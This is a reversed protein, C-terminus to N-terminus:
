EQVWPSVDIAHSALRSLLGPQHSALSHTLKIVREALYKTLKCLNDDPEQLQGTSWLAANYCSGGCLTRAWCAQCAPRNPAKILEMIERLRDLNVNTFVSGLYYEERGIFDRCPFYVSGDVDFVLSYRAMDTYQPPCGPCGQLREEGLLLACLLRGFFDYRNCVKYLLGIDGNLARIEVLDVLRQYGTLFIPLTDENLGFQTETSGRIPRIVIREFGMEDLHLLIRDFHEDLATLVTSSVFEKGRGQCHQRYFEMKRASKAYSGSSRPTLRIRDHIDPPGDISFFLDHDPDECLACIEEESLPIANTAFYFKFQLMGSESMRERCYEKIAKITELNLSPEGNSTFSLSIRKVKSGFERCLYDIIARGTAPTMRRVAQHPMVGIPCYRCALNCGSVVSITARAHDPEIFAFRRETLFPRAQDPEGEVLPYLQMEDPVYAFEGAMSAFVIYWDQKTSDM